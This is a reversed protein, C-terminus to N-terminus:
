LLGKEKDWILEGIRGNELQYYIYHVDYREFIEFITLATFTVADFRKYSIDWIMAVVPLVTNEDIEVEETITFLDTSEVEYVKTLDGYDDIRVWSDNDSHFEIDNIGNDWVYKLLEDLRVQRERKIKM